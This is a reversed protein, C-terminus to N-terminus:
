SGIDIAARGNVRPRVIDVAALHEPHDLYLDLAARDDFEGQLVLDYNLPVDETNATVTLSRLGAVIGVLRELSETIAATDAARQDDDVAALTWMVIHKIM